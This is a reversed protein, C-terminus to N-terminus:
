KIGELSKYRNIENQIGNSIEAFFKQNKFPKNSNNIGQLLKWQNSYAAYESKGAAGSRHDQEHRLYSGGFIALDGRGIDGMATTVGGAQWAQYPQSTQLLYIKGGIVTGVIPNAGGWSLQQESKIYEDSSGSARAVGALDNVPDTSLTFDSLQLGNDEGRDKLADLWAGVVRNGEQVIKLTNELSKRQDILGQDKPNKKLGDKAQKIKEKLQEESEKGLQVNEMGTPDAYSFPNNVAYSYLNIMQPNVLREPSLMVPDPSTFRGQTSSYYRAGFYDLGTEVDREKSTFKQRV